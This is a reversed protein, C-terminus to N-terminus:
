RGFLAWAALSLAALVVVAVLAQREFRKALDATRPAAAEEAALLARAASEAEADSVAIRIRMTGMTAIWTLFDPHPDDLIEPNLGADALVKM